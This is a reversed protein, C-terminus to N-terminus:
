GIALDHALTDVASRRRGEARGLQSFINPTGDRSKLADTKIARIGNTKASAPSSNLLLRKESRAGIRAKNPSCTALCYM